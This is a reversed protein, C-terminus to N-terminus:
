CSGSRQPASSEASCQPPRPRSGQPQASSAPDRRRTHRRAPPKGYRRTARPLPLLTIEYLQLRPPKKSLPLDRTKQASTPLHPRSSFVARLADATSEALKSAPPPLQGPNHRVPRSICCRATRRKAARRPPRDRGANLRHDDPATRGTVHPHAAARGQPFLRM